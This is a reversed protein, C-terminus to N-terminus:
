EHLKEMEVQRLQRCEWEARQTPYELVGLDGARGAPLQPCHSIGPPHTICVPYRLQPMKRM